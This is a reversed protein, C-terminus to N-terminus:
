CSYHHTSITHKLVLKTGKEVADRAAQQNCVDASISVVMQDANKRASQFTTHIIYM